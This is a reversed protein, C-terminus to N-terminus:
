RSLNAGQEDDRHFDPDVKRTRLGSSFRSGSEENTMGFFDPDMEREDDRHFDPDM